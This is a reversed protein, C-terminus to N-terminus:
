AAKTLFRTRLTQWVQPLNKGLKKLSLQPMEKNQSRLHFLYLGFGGLLLHPLWVAVIGPLSKSKGLNLFLNDVFTLAFFFVVAMTMGGVLGRRSFVVSLPAAFLVVVLCHWPLAFRYFLHTWYPALKEEGYASNARIYSILDPVGLFDPVLTGSVLIWPTESWELFDIRPHGDGLDFPQLAVVQGNKYTVEVGSYFSWM